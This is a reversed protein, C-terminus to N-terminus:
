NLGMNTDIYPAIRNSVFQMEEATMVRETSLVRFVIEKEKCDICNKLRSCYGRYNVLLDTKLAHDETSHIVELIKNLGEVLSNSRNLTKMVTKRILTQTKLGSNEM